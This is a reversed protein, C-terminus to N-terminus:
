HSIGSALICVFAQKQPIARAATLYIATERVQARPTPSRKPKPRSAISSIVSNCYSFQPSPLPKTEQIISQTSVWTGSAHSTQRGM